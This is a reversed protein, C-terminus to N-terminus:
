HANFKRFINRISKDIEDSTLKRSDLQQTTWAQWVTKDTKPDMMTVTVTGERVPVDYTDYGMFQSPYYITGWRRMYPNYYVRSFPRSYVPDSQQQTAKEVLIDYGVLVDPDQNVETWREKALQANVSAHINQGACASVDKNDDQSSKTQVWM